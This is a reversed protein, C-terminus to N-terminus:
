ALVHVFGTHLMRLWPQQARSQAHPTTHIRTQAGCALCGYEFMANAPEYMNGM